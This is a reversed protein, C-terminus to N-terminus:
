FAPPCAYVLTRESTGLAIGIAVEPQEPTDVIHQVHRSM